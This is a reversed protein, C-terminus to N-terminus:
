RREEECRVINELRDFISSLRVGLGLAVKLATEVTIAKGGREITGIYARKLGCRDALAQQSLGAELRLNRIVEGLETKIEVM